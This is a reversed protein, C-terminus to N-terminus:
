ISVKEYVKVYGKVSCEWDFKEQVSEWSLGQLRKVKLLTKEIMEALMEVNRPEVLILDKKDSIEKTGGVDTAIVVCKALLGELVSTPLGERFSPNVLMDVHKVLFHVLQERDM